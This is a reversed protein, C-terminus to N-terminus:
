AQARRLSVVAAVSGVELGASNRLRWEAPPAIISREEPSLLGFGELVGLVAPKLARRSGDSIKVAIGIGREVDGTAHVGEAGAKSVVRGELVRMLLTDLRGEGAVNEPHARMADRIMALAPIARGAADRGRALLAVAHALTALPMRPAPASCGDVAPIADLPAEGVIEAFREFIRRQVPHTHATYGQLPAGWDHALLLMGAHKGSCNHRLQSPEEGRARLAEATPEDYPTHTGCRLASADAGAAALIREALAAHRDTGGHSGVILALADSGLGSRQFAGSEVLPVGQFPKFASRPFIPARPDGAWALLQGSDDVIAVHGFHVSETQGARRIHVLPAPDTASGAAGATLAPKELPM